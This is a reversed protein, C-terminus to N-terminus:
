YKIWTSVNNICYKIFFIENFSLSFTGYNFSQRVEGVILWFIFKCDLFLLFRHTVSHLSALLVLTVPGMPMEWETWRLKTWWFHCWLSFDFLVIWFLLLGASMIGNISLFTLHCNSSIALFVESGFPSWM